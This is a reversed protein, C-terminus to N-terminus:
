ATSNTHVASIHVSYPRGGRTVGVDANGPELVASSDHAGSPVLKDLDRKMNRMAHTVSSKSVRFMNHVDQRLAEIELSINRVLWALINCEHNM